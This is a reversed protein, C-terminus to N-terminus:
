MPMKRNRLQLRVVVVEPRGSFTNKGLPLFVDRQSGSRGLFQRHMQDICLLNRLGVYLTGGLLLDRATSGAAAVNWAVPKFDGLSAIETSIRIKNICSSPLNTCIPILFTRSPATNWERGAGTAGSTGKGSDPRM